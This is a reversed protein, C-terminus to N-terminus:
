GAIVRQLGPPKSISRGKAKQVGAYRSGGAEGEMIVGRHWIEDGTEVYRKGHPLAAVDDLSCTGFRLVARLSRRSAFKSQGAKAATRGITRATDHHWRGHEPEVGPGVVGDSPSLIDPRQYASM